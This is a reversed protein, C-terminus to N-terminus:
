LKCNRASANLKNLKTFKVFTLRATDLGPVKPSNVAAASALTRCSARLYENQPKGRFSDLHGKRQVLRSNKGRPTRSHRAAAAYLPLGWKWGVPKGDLPLSTVM